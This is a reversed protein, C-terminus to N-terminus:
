APGLVEVHGDPFKVISRHSGFPINKLNERVEPFYPRMKEADYPDVYFAFKWHTNNWLSKNVLQPRQSGWIVNLNLGGGKRILELLGPAITSADSYDTVEDFYTATRLGTSLLAYCYQNVWEVGEKGLPAQVRWRFYGDPRSAAKLADAMQVAPIDPFDSKGDPRMPTKTDWVVLRPYAPIILRKAFTTKGSRTQGVEGVHEEQGFVIDTM